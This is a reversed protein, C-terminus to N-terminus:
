ESAISNLLEQLERADNANLADLKVELESNREDSFAIYLISGRIEASQLNRLAASEWGGLIYKRVKIEGELLKIYPPPMKIYYAAVAMVVIVIILPLHLSPIFANVNLYAVMTIVTLVMILLIMATNLAAAHSSKKFHFQKNPLNRITM